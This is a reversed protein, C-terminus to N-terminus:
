EKYEAFLAKLVDGRSVIGSVEQNQNLVPTRRAKQTLMVHAAECLVTDENVTIVNERMVERVRMKALLSVKQRVAKPNEDYVFKGVAEMYSPLIKVLIEKETFMGVLKNKDDIVPLGSIKMKQLVDWADLASMEPSLSTIEKIMIERIKM